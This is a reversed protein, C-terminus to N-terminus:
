LTNVLCITLSGVKNIEHKMSKDPCGVLAGFELDFGKAKNKASGISSMTLNPLVGFLEEFIKCSNNRVNGTEDSIKSLNKFIVMLLCTTLWLMRMLAILLNICIVM